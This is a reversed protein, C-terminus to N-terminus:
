SYLETTTENNSNKFDYTAKCVIFYTNNKIPQFLIKDEPFYDVIKQILMDTETNPYFVCQYTKEDIPSETEPIPICCLVELGKEVQLASHWDFGLLKYVQHTKLAHLYRKNEIFEVFLFEDSIFAKCDNCLHIFTKEIQM